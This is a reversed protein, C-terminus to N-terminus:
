FTEGLLVRVIMQPNTYAYHNVTFLLKNFSQYMRWNHVVHPIFPRIKFSFDRVNYLKSAYFHFSEHKTDSKKIPM